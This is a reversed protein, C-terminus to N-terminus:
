LPQQYVVSYPEFGLKEYFARATENWSFVNLRMVSVGVARLESAAADMLKRGMGMGRVPDTVFLEDIYGIIRGSAKEIYALVYGAPQGNSFALLLFRDAPGAQLIQRARGRRQELRQEFNDDAPRHPQNWLTLGCALEAFAAEDDQTAQRILISM